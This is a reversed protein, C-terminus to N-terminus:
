DNIDPLIYNGDYSGSIIQGDNRTFTFTFQINFQTFNTITVSGLQAYVDSESDSDSLLVNGHNFESDIVSSNISVDYDDIQNYTTNQISVDDFDFYVFNIDTLDSNGALEAASKNFISIGIESSENTSTNEDNIIAMTLNYTEGNFTFQNNNENPISSTDDSSCAIVIIALFLGLAQPLKLTM